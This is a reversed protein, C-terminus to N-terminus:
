LWGRAIFITALTLIFFFGCMDAMTTVILPAALAPDAKVRKLFLPVLGGLTLSVLVNVGLACGVVVSLFFNGYIIFAVSGLALSMFFGIILGVQAEKLFVRVFEEPQIMGISLERISVAVAQNGSCGSMNAIIPIFFVLALVSEVTEHFKLIVSAAVLSLGMNVVLWILRRFSRSWLSMNRLEEGGIIGGFRMLAEEARASYAEEADGRRVVGVLRGHHDTVPAGVFPYRDFLDDLEDLTTDTNVYLPNPIMVKNLPLDPPSLVVDRLRVVGVLTGEKSLAYAYQVSYDSYVEANERMDHLVDAVTMDIPYALYETVMIAGATEEPYTLLQRADQAEEPDMRELIAAAEDPEMEGLVDARHDSEMEDIIAAADDPTLEEIIDAGLTDLFEELLDAASEPGLLVLLAAQDDDDLRSVARATEASSLTALYVKLAESDKAELLEELREWSELTTEEAM